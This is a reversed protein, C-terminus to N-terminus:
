RATQLRALVPDLSAIPPRYSNALRPLQLHLHPSSTTLPASIVLKPLPTPSVPLTPM